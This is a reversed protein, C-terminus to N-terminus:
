AVNRIAAQVKEQLAASTFPKEIYAVDGAFVDEGTISADTYGSMYLVPIEPRLGRVEQALIPGNMGPMVVDTLLLHIPETLDRAIQLAEAGSAATLVRYGHRSLISSTLNRVQDEDEVLLITGTGRERHAPRIDASQESVQDAAPFYIKFVTGQGPESYVLIEGGAQKVIGYVISLGLGTGKGQGKTTFFPEFIRAQTAQDMGSGTDSVALMVYPGPQLNLHKGVYEAGLSVNATELILKGGDPMADRSNVALNMIVQDLHSPDAVIAGLEPMTQIVLEIDEGIVRRLMKEMQEVVQNLDVVRPVANQRRSFALLQGTLAAARQGARLIEDASELAEPNGQLQERLIEGYGLIVTLLNNFDHAVGGALRGVAEMKQSHVLEREVEERRAIERRLEDVTQALEATRAAVRRELDDNAQRVQEEATRREGIELELKRNVVQLQSPSPLRILAPLLPILMVTTAMSAVATIAKVVGDLRYVPVWVTLAGLLHTSGCALIFVGFAVFIGKFEIDRRRRAFSFLLVPIFYYSAAIVSDATVNLWLVSPNWFYCMGHPMFDAS